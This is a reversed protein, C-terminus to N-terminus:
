SKYVKMCVDVFLEDAIVLLRVNSEIFGAQHLKPLHMVATCTHLGRSLYVIAYLMSQLYATM